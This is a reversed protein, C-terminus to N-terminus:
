VETVRTVGNSLDLPVGLPYDRRCKASLKVAFIKASLLSLGTYPPHKPQDSAERPACTIINDNKYCSLLRRMRFEVTGDVSKQSVMLVSFQKSM